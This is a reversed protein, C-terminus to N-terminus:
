ELHDQPDILRVRVQNRGENKASYLGLDARKLLSGTTEDSLQLTSVGISATIELAEDTAPVIFPAGAIESRLREAVYQAKDHNTEPTVVVFEEGGYRCVLDLGRVNRRLRRAFEVLVADGIDHGYRDNIQKFHDVDILLLSLHKGEAIAKAIHASAHHEFYRRNYLGTLADTAAMEITEQMARLLGDSTRKYRIQNRCRLTFESPDLPMEVFDNVGIEMAKLIQRRDNRRSAVLLIPIMRMHDNSRMQSCLRLPDMGEMAGNVIVLDPDEEVCRYLARGPRTECKVEYGDQLGRKIFEMSSPDNDIIFVCAGSLPGDLESETAQLSLDQGTRARMRLEDMTRKMRILNRVRVVLEIDDVPKSIFDDAGAELGRVRDSQHQLATILVVPVQSTRPSAKIRRCVEFGDIDPMLVDLLVVDFATTEMARLAETGNAATTVEFYDAALRAALLRLNAEIDDVVLVRGTM